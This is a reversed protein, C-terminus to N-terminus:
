TKTSKTRATYISCGIIQDFDGRSCDVSSPRDRNRPRKIISRADGISGRACAMAAVGCFVDIAFFAFHDCTCYGANNLEMAVIPCMKKNYPVSEPSLYM